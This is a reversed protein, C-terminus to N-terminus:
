RLKRPNHKTAKAKAEIVQMNTFTSVRKAIPIKEHKKKHKKLPSEVTQDNPQSGDFQGKNYTSTGGEMEEEWPSFRL